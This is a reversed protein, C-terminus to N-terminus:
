GSRRLLRSATSHSPSTRAASSSYTEVMAVRQGNAFIMKACSLSTGTNLADATGQCVYHQGIYVTVWGDVNKIVRNGEGDYVFTTVVDPPPPGQTRILVEELARQQAAQTKTVRDVAQALM